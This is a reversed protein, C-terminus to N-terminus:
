LSALAIRENCFRGHPTIASAEPDLEVRANGLSNARLAITGRV